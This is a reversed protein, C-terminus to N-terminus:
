RNRKIIHYPPRPALQDSSIGQPTKCASTHSTKVQTDPLQDDSGNVIEAIIM